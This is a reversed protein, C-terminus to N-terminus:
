LVLAARLLVKTRGSQGRQLVAYHRQQLRGIRIDSTALFYSSGVALGDSSVERGAFVPHSLFAAVSLYGDRGRDAILREADNRSLGDALSMLVEASATNVNIEAPEPLVTVHPRLAEFEAQGIGNILLLESPSVMPTNGARYAPQLGLYLDDEGGAPFGPDIDADVWDAVTVALDGNLDLAELLRRFRAEAIRNHEGAVVLANLNFRGQLDALFGALQGNEVPIPPLVTAWQENPHDVKGRERDRRLIEGAWAAIARAYLRIQDAEALNATRRLDLQQSTVMAAAVTAALAVVLIATILAVGRQSGPRRRM